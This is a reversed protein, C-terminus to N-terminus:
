TKIKNGKTQQKKYALAKKMSGKDDPDYEVGVLMKDLKNKAMQKLDTREKKMKKLETECKKIDATLETIKTKRAEQYERQYNRKAQTDDDAIPKRPRGRPM